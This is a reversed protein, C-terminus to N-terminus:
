NQPEVAIESNGEAFIAAFDREWEARSFGIRKAAETATIERRFYADVTDRYQSIFLSHTDFTVTVKM